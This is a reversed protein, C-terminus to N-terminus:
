VVHLGALHGGEGGVVVEAGLDDGLRQGKLHPWPGRGWDERVLWLAGLQGHVPVM